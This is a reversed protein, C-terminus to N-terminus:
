DNTPKQTKIFEEIRAEEQDYLASDGTQAADYLTQLLVKFIDLKFHKSAGKEWKAHAEFYKNTLRAAEESVAEEVAEDGQEVESSIRRTKGKSKAKAKDGEDDGEEDGDSGDDDSDGQKDEDEDVDEDQFEAQAGMAEMDDKFDFGEDEDVELLDEQLSKKVKKIPPMKPDFWQGFLGTGQSDPVDPGLSDHKVDRLMNKIGEYHKTDFNSKSWNSTQTEILMNNTSDDRDHLELETPAKKKDWGTLMRNGHARHTIAFCLPNKIAYVIPLGLFESYKKQLFQKQSIHYLKGEEAKSGKDKWGWICVISIIEIFICEPPDRTPHLGNCWEKLRALVDGILANCMPWSWGEPPDDDCFWPCDDIKGRRLKVKFETEIKHVMFRMPHLNIAQEEPNEPDDYHIARVRGREKHWPRDKNGSKDFNHFKGSRWEDRDLAIREASASAIHNKRYILQFHAKARLAALEKADGILQIQHAKWKRDADDNREGARYADYLSLHRSLFSLWAPLHIWKAFNVTLPCFVFNDKLHQLLGAASIGYPFAADISIAFADKKFLGSPKEGAQVREKDSYGDVWKAGPQVREKFWAELQQSAEELTNQFRKDSKEIKANKFDRYLMQKLRDLAAKFAMGLPWKKRDAVDCPSCVRFGLVGDIMGECPFTNGCSSCVHDLICSNDSGILRCVPQALVGNDIDTNAGHAAEACAIWAELIKGTDAWAQVLADLVPTVRVLDISKITIMPLRGRGVTPDIDRRVASSPNIRSRRSGVDRKVSFLKVGGYTGPRLPAKQSFANGFSKAYQKVLRKM